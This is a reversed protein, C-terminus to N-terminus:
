WLISTYLCMWPFFIFAFSWTIFHWLSPLYPFSICIIGHFASNSGSTPCKRVRLHTAPYFSKLAIKIIRIFQHVSSTGICLLRSLATYNSFVFLYDEDSPSSQPCTQYMCALPSFSFISSFLTLTSRVLLLILNSHPRVMDLM